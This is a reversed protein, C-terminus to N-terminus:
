ILIVPFVAKACPKGVVPKRKVPHAVHFRGVAYRIQPERDMVHNTFLTLGITTNSIGGLERSLTGCAAISWM